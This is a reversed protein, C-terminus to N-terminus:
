VIKLDYYVYRIIYTQMFFTRNIFVFQLKGSQWYTLKVLHMHVDCIQSVQGKLTLKICLSKVVTLNWEQPFM